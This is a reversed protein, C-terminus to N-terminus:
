LNDGSGLCFHCGHLSFVHGGECSWQKPKQDMHGHIESANVIRIRLWGQESGRHDAFLLFCAGPDCSSGVSHQLMLKTLRSDRYLVLQWDLGPGFPEPNLVFGTCIQM